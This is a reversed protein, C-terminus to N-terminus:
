AHTLAASLGVGASTGEPETVEPFNCCASYNLRWDRRTSLKETTTSIALNKGTMAKLAVLHSGLFLPLGPLDSRISTEIFSAPSEDAQRAPIEGLPQRM